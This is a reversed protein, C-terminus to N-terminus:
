ACEYDLSAVLIGAPSMANICVADFLDQPKLKTKAAIEQLESLDVNYLFEVKISYREASCNIMKEEGTGQEYSSGHGLAGDYGHMTADFLLERKGCDFCAVHHPNREIVEGADVGAYTKSDSATIPFCFIRLESSNCAQCALSFRAVIDDEDGPIAAVTFKAVCTPPDRLALAAADSM